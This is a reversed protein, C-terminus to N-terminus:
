GGNRLNECYYRTLPYNSAPRRILPSFDPVVWTVVIKMKNMAHKPEWIETPYKKMIEIETSSTMKNIYQEGSKISIKIQTTKHSM